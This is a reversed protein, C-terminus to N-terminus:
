TGPIAMCRGLNSFNEAMIKKFIPKQDRERKAQSRWMALITKKLPIGYNM